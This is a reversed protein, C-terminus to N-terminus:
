AKSPTLEAARVRHTHWWLSGVHNGGVRREGHPWHVPHLSVPSRRALLAASIWPSKSTAVPCPSLVPCPCPSRLCGPRNCLLGGASGRPLSGAPVDRPWGWLLVAPAAAPSPVIAAGVGSHSTRGALPARAAVLPSSFWPKLSPFAFGSAAPAARLGQAYECTTQQAGWPVSRAPLASVCLPAMSLSLVPSTGGGWAPAWTHGAARLRATSSSQPHLPQIGRCGSGLCDRNDDFWDRPVLGLGSGGCPPPCVSPASGMPDRRGQPLQPSCCPSPCVPLLSLLLCGSCASGKWGAVRHAPPQRACRQGREADARPRPPPLVSGLM